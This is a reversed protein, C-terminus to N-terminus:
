NGAKPPFRLLSAARTFAEPPLGLARLTAASRTFPNKLRHLALARRLGLWPILARPWTAAPYDSGYLLKRALAPDRLLHRLPMARTPLGFASVDGYLNPYRRALACWALFPARSQHLFLRAGCHAAIVTVGRELAPILRRPHNLTDPFNKLTHEPGAHSLLPLRHRVLADYFNSYRPDDPAINQASPLWKILCAGLAALRHLEDLADPRAPHLSAGFLIKRPHAAALRAIYDNDTVLLTRADDRTGDTHHPADLALLVTHDLDSDDLWRLTRDLLRADLDPRDPDAPALDLRRLFLRCALRRRFAPTVLNGHGAALTGAIHAHIDIRPAGAGANANAGSSPPPPAPIM